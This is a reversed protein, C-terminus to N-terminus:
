KRLNPGGVLRGVIGDAANNGEAGNRCAGVCADVFAAWATGEPGVVVDFFDGAGSCRQTGCSGRVLPDRAPNIATTYFLPSPKLANATITVYGNWVDNDSPSIGMYAMAIKGPRGVDLSPLSAFRVGPRAIMMPNSWTAGGDRSIALYPREDLAIWDYYINGLEDVAVGAEHSENVDGSAMGNNAVQVRKWSGGEDKSIALHPQGCWGKPLYVVGDADTVGHGSPGLCGDSPPFAPEGSTAFSLGGDVSRLCGTALQGPGIGPSAACYYVLDPYVTTPTSVPPGAFVTEHDALGCVQPNTTWSEAEDDSYFLQACLNTKLSAAFVRDTRPDVYLYPDGFASPEDALPTVDTWTRGKDTSRSVVLAATNGRDAGYFINGGSTIGM